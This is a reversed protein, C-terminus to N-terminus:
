MFLILLGIFLYFDYFFFSWFSIGSSFFTIFSVSIWSLKLLVSWWISPFFFGFYNSSLNNSIIWDFLFFLIFSPSSLRHSKCFILFLILLFPCFSLKFFYHIFVKWIKPLFRMDLNMLSLPNLIPHVLDLSDQSMNYDFQWVDLIFLSSQCFLLFAVQWM